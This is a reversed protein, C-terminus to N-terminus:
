RRSWQQLLRPPLQSPSRRASDSSATSSRPRSVPRPRRTNCRRGRSRQSWCPSVRETDARMKAKSVTGLMCDLEGKILTRPGAEVRLSANFECGVDLQYAPALFSVCLFPDEKASASAALDDPTGGYELIFYDCVLVRCHACDGLGHTRCRAGAPLTLPPAAKVDRREGKVRARRQLVHMFALHISAFANSFHDSDLVAEMQVSRTKNSMMRQLGVNSRWDVLLVIRVSM